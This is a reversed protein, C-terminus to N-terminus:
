LYYEVQINNRNSYSFVAFEITIRSVDSGIKLGDTLDDMEYLQGDVDVSTVKIKPAVTNYPINQTDITCIGTNCCIYLNGRSDIYSDNVSNITKTLGDEADLYRRSIGQSGRLEEETVDIIGMSSIIWLKDGYIEIDYIANSYEINSIQRFSENYFCIGNDTGIWIGEEGEVIVTIVNSNLGDETNFNELTDDMPNIAYIGGGDTGAFLIGDETEFLCTVNDYELGQEKTYCKKVQGNRDTIAVGSDTAVAINGNKLECLYNISTSPLGSARTYYDIAGTSSVRVMGYKRYTGVWLTNHSDRIVHRVSIGSLMDTLENNVKENNGDYIILGDDTGIYKDNNNIFVSNVMTDQMGTYMNFDQFKSRCLLLVGMRKSSFWYNGEYDQIADTIYNDILCDNAKIFNYNSDFFGIGNDGCIWLYGKDDKMISNISDINASLINYGALNDFVVVDRGTTGVYIKDEIVDVCSLEDVMVDSLNVQGILADKGLVYVNSIGNIAWVENGRSSIESFQIGSVTTDVYKEMIMVDDDNYKCTFLGQPTAVYVTGDETECVDFINKIGAYYEDQLHYSEGNEIYFLGYNETGVWMRGTNDQLLCNISYVDTRDTDWLNISQFESGKSRYLGGDTGIWIYGSSSQYLCNVESSGIGNQQNYVTQIYQSVFADRASVSNESVLFLCVLLFAM